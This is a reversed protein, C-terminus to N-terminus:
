AGVSSSPSWRRSRASVDTPLTHRQRRHPSKTRPGGPREPGTSPAGSTARRHGGALYHGFAALEVSPM